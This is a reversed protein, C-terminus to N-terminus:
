KKSNKNRKKLSEWFLEDDDIYAQREYQAILGDRRIKVGIECMIYRYLMEDEKILPNTKFQKIDFHKFLTNLVQKGKGTKKSMLNIVEQRKTEDMYRLAQKLIIRVPDYRM